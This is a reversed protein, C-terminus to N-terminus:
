NMTATTRSNQGTVPIFSTNALGNVLSPIIRIKFFCSLFMSRSGGGGPKFSSIAGFPPAMPAPGGPGLGPNPGGPPILIADIVPGGDIPALPTTLNSCVGIWEGDVLEEQCEGLWIDCVDGLMSVPPYIAATPLPGPPIPNGGPPVWLGCYM